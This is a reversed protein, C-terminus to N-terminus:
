RAHPPLYAPTRGIGGPTNLRQFQWRQLDRDRQDANTRSQKWDSRARCEVKLDYTRAGLRVKVVPPTVIEEATCPDGNVKFRAEDAKDASAAVSSALIACVALGLGIKM